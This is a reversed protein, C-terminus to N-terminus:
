ASPSLGNIYGGQFIQSVTSRPFIGQEGGLEELASPGVWAFVFLFWSRFYDLFFSPLVGLCPGTEVTPSLVIHKMM